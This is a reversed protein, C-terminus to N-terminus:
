TAGHKVLEAINADRADAYAWDRAARGDADKVNVDPRRQLLLLLTPLDGFQAAWMLATDGRPGQADVACGADLLIKLLELHHGRVAEKLLQASDPRPDSGAALLTRVIETNGNHVPALLPSDYKSPRANVNAGATILLDVIPRSDSSAASMLATCGNASPLNVDAGKGILFRILIPDNSLVAYHL